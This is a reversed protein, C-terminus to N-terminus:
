IKVRRSCLELLVYVNDSDEFFGDLRVVHPHSLSRHIEIEQTM